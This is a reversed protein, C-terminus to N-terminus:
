FVSLQRALYPIEDFIEHRVRRSRDDDPWGDSEVATVGEDKAGPNADSVANARELAVEGHRRVRLSSEHRKRFYDRVCEGSFKASNQEVILMGVELVSGGGVRIQHGGQTM